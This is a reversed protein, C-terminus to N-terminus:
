DRQRARATIKRGEEAATCFTAISAAVPIVATPLRSVAKRGFTVNCM